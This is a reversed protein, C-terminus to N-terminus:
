GRYSLQYAGMGLAAKGGLNFWRGQNLYERLLPSNINELYIDGMLAPILMSKQQRNSRRPLQVERLEAYFGVDHTLQLWEHLPPLELGSVHYLAQLLEFRRHLALFFDSGTIEHALLAHSNSHGQLKRKFLLPSTFSLKVNTVSAPLPNLEPAQFIQLSAPIASAGIGNELASRWVEVLTERQALAPGMLTFGAEIVGGASYPQPSIVYAPPCDQYRKPWDAPPIPGFIAQYPCDAQHPEGECTCLHAKLAHGFLGRLMSGSYELYHLPRQPQIHLIWREANLATNLLM